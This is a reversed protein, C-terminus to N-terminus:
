QETITILTDISPNHITQMKGSPWLVTISRITKAAGVGFLATLSNQSAYGSGARITRSIHKLTRMDDYEVTVKAGIGSRNSATGILHV